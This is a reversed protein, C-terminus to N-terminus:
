TQTNGACAPTIRVIIVIIYIEIRIERVHPPSGTVPRLYEHMKPTNGACAPTIRKGANASNDSLHIERVHPPSGKLELQTFRTTYYKGCMRPHDRSHFAYWPMRGTNGACAPTIRYSAQVAGKALPIERM